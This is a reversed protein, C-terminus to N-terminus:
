RGFFGGGGAFSSFDTPPNLIIADGEQIDGELVESELDSSSGLTVDVQQPAGAVM